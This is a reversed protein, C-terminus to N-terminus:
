LEVLSNNFALLFETNQFLEFLKPMDDKYLNNTLFEKLEM